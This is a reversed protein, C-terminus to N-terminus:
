NNFQQRLNREPIKFRAIRKRSCETLEEITLPENGKLVMTTEPTDSYAPDILARIAVRGGPYIVLNKEANVLQNYRRNFQRDNLRIYGMILSEKTPTLCAQKSLLSGTNMKM